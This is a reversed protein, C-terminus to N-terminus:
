LNKVKGGLWTACIGCFVYLYMDSFSVLALMISIFAGLLLCMRESMLRSFLVGLAFELLVLFMLSM